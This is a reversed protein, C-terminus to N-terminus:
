NVAYHSSTDVPLKYDELKGLADIDEGNLAILRFSVSKDQDVRVIIFNDERMNGMGSGILFMNDYHYYMFAARSTLAGMDGSFMYVDHDLNHFFPEVESWFNISDARWYTSNPPVDKFMNDPSWWLLEHFFVFINNVGSLNELQKEIFVLQSDSINWNDLNPDLVIFLDDEFMFSYWTKGYREEYLTRNSMDHQGVAFYVPLGLLELDADIEDWNQETSSIVIDGTFVGFKMNQDYQILDFKEKFPPHVGPNDVGPAGYVHGAVFFSYLQSNHDDQPNITLDTDCSISLISLLLFVSLRLVLNIIGSKRYRM